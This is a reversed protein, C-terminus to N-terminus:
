KLSPSNVTTLPMITISLFINEDPKLSEDEYYNKKYQIGATLCDMKYQYILNYYETIDKTKNKRTSFELSNKDNLLLKTNNSLYSEDGILNNKELFEFSTVFNNVSITSSIKNYNLTEFNDDISFDYKLDFFKSPKFMSSGVLDSTKKNLTTKVPLRDNEVDSFVMGLDLSFLEDNKKNFLSYENGITISQGGEITEQSAIRNLSFINSFDMIRDKEKINRSKNPSYRASIIPTLTSSFKEGNKEMPLKIQYNLISKIENENKNKHKSSNKTDSNFNKVLLEYNYILGLNSIKNISKYSLDNIIVRESVNTKYQKNFGSSNFTINSSQNFYLDKSFNYSPYIFEYKDSEKKISLDEFVETTIEFELNDDIIEYKLQNHLTSENDILPSSFNYTKLYYDNSTQQVKLSIQSTNLNDTNFIYSSESFFHSQTEKFQLVKSTLFSFDFINDSNKTVKRYENQYITKQDSYFRPSFTLDSNESIVHFYPTSLYNGLNTSQSFQPILFGSQRKVTPDPHFFKPFYFVPVDYLKLWANDYIVSKKKKDHKIQSASLQWPPCGDRRKCTTFVGKKIESIDKNYLFAKGKLRPENEPSNFTSNKFNIELDKGIFRNNQLDVKINELDYKNSQNDTLKINQASLVKKLLDINMKKSILINGINDKFENTNETYIKSSNLDYNINTTKIEYKGEIFINTLGISKILNKDKLFLIEQSFIIIENLEDIIEINGKIKILSQDKIYESSDSNITLNKIGTINVGDEAKLINGNDLSFIKSSEFQIEEAFVNLILFFNMFFILVQMLNTIKNKM